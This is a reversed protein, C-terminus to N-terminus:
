IILKRGCYLILRARKQYNLYVKSWIKCGAELSMAIWFCNSRCERESLQKWEAFAVKRCMIVYKNRQADLQEALTKNLKELELKESIFATPVPLETNGDSCFMNLPLRECWIEVIVCTTPAPSPPVVGGNALRGMVTEISLMLAHQSQQNLSQIKAIYQQNNECQVALAIVLQALKLLEVVDADRAISTLNPVEVASTNQGLVEEYYGILVKYLKKLNNFKLM